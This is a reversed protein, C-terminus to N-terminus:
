LGLESFFSKRYNEGIPIEQKSIYIRNGSIHSIKNSNIVFSRHVRKFFPAKLLGELESFTMKTVLSQESTVVKVYNGAAEVYLLEDYNIKFIKGDTRIFITEEKIPHPEAKVSNLSLRIKVKDIAIIFREFSFPKLLYDCADANFADTAYDKYATTFVILPPNKLTNLFKVGDLIPMNIDLFILDVKYEELYAKAQLANGSSNVVKLYALNSCYALLIDRAIPEDDVIMCQITLM